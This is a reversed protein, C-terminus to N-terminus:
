RVVQGRYDDWITGYEDQTERYRVPHTFFLYHLRGRKLHGNAAPSSVKRFRLRFTAIRRTIQLHESFYQDRLPLGLEARAQNVLGELEGIEERSVADKYGVGHLLEHLVIFGVAFSQRVEPPAEIESFDDFDILMRWIEFRRGSIGDILDIGENMQGFVVTQSGSHDEIILTKGSGLACFIIQRAISSGPAVDTADGLSLSGDEAFILQRFGTIWRLSRVLQDEHAGSLRNSKERNCWIGAALLREAIAPSSRIPLLLCGLLCAQVMKRRMKM